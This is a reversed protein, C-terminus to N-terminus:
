FPSNDDEEEECTNLDLELNDATKVDQWDIVGGLYSAFEKRAVELTPLVYGRKLGDSSQKRKGLASPCIKTLISKIKKHQLTEYRESNPNSIRYCELLTSSFIYNLKNDMWAPICTPETLEEHWWREFGQLSQIKQEIHESTKPRQRFNFKSIDKTMLHSVLAGITLDDKISARIDGYYLVNQAKFESVKLFLFRRDDADVNVFHSKNSAAFFRHFSAISKQSEYKNEVLLRDETILSKLKEAAKKDGSFLAEDLWIIFTKELVGNFRGLVQDISPVLLSTKQWITKLLEYFTGKGVGQGGLLVVMVGPKEEPKQLMHALYSILYEYVDRQNNCINELIFDLIIQCSGHSSPKTTPGTWLNLVDAGTPLPSFTIEKFIHTNGSLDFDEIDKRPNSAISQNELFRKMLLTADKKNYLHVNTYRADLKVEEIQDFDAYSITGLNFICFKSQLASLANSKKRINTM